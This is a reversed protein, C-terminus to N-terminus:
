SCTRLRTGHGERAARVLCLGALALLPVSLLGERRILYLLVCLFVIPREGKRCSGFTQSWSPLSFMLFCTCEATGPSRDVCGPPALPAAPGGTGM